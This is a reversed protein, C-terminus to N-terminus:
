AQRLALALVELDRDSAVNAICLSSQPLALLWRLAAAPGGQRLMELSLAHVPQTPVSQGSKEAVWEHLNSAQYGFAKDRAFETQGAPVLWEGEAVYHVDAITYRGGEAFYPVLVWADFSQGVGHALASVEGPFHGRLTSDSRSILSFDRGAQQKAQALQRGTQTNLAEAEAPPLSRSNTLLYLAPAADLLEYALQDMSWHTLVTVGHVTQTGTPDDDLVIVKRNAQHIQAQIAPLLDEPWAAPLRKFLEDKRIREEKMM